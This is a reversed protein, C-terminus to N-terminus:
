QKRKDLFRALSATRKLSDSVHHALRRHMTMQAAGGTIAAVLELQPETRQVSLIGAAHAEKAVMALVKEAQEIMAGDYACVSGAYIITTPATSDDHTSRAVAASASDEFILGATVPPRSGFFLVGAAPCPCCQMLPPSACTAVAHARCGEGAALQDSCFTSPVQFIERFSGLKTPSSALEAPAWRAATSSAPPKPMSAPPAAAPVVGDDVDVPRPRPRVPLPADAAFRLPEDFGTKQYPRRQAASGGGHGGGAMPPPLLGLGLLDPGM